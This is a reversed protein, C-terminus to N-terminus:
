LQSLNKVQLNGHSAPAQKMYSLMEPSLKGPPKWLMSSGAEHIFANSSFPVFIRSVFQESSEDQIQNISQSSGTKKKIKDKKRKKKKKKAISKPDSKNNAQAQSSDFGSINQQYLPSWLHKTYTLVHQNFQTALFTKIDYYKSISM